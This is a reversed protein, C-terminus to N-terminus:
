GNLSDEVRRLRNDINQAYEFLDSISKLVETNIESQNKMHAVLADSLFKVYENLAKVQADAEDVKGSTINVELTLGLSAKILQMINHRTSYAVTDFNKESIEIAM